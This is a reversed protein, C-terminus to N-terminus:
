EAGLILFAQRQMWGTSGRSVCDVKIRSGPPREALVAELDQSSRTPQGDVAKIVDGVHLGALSAACAPALQVIEIGGQESTSGSIGLVGGRGKVAAHEPVTVVREAGM